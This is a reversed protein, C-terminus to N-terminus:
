GHGADRFGWAREWLTRSCKPPASQAHAERGAKPPILQLAAAEHHLGPADPESESRSVRESLPAEVCRIVGSAARKGVQRVLL